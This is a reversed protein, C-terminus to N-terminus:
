CAAEVAKRLESPTFKNRNLVSVVGYASVDGLLDDSLLIAPTNVTEAHSRLDHLLAFVTPGIPNVAAIILDPTREARYATICDSFEVIEGLPDLTIRLASRFEPSSDILHILAPRKAPVSDQHSAPASFKTPTFTRRPAPTKHPLM